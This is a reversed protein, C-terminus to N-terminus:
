FGEQPEYDTHQETPAPADTKDQKFFRSRDRVYELYIQQYGPGATRNKIMKLVTATELTDKQDTADEKKKRHLLYIAHAKDTLVRSGRLVGHSDRRQEKIDEAEKNSQGVIIFLCNYKKGLAELAEATRGEAIVFPENGKQQVVCPFTDIVFRSPRIVKLTSEIFKLPDDGQLAHGLYYQFPNGNPCTKDLKDATAIYDDQTIVMSRNLNRETLVQAAVLALYSTGSLEPSFVVVTEGRQAEELVVQTTFVTKGTGSFTSYFVVYGADVPVYAMEDVEKIAFHLRFPDNAGDTGAATRLRQILSMFGEVPTTQSLTVLENVKQKFVEIDRGCKDRFFDNADKAGDPWLILFTNEGLESLLLKMKDSGAKGDNDGALIVMPAKKLIVKWEPTIKATANPISVARFDAQEMIATDLEGETVFVPELANITETNFLAKGDMGTIQVFEKCVVSRMKVATIKDGVIRPFCIWGKDRCSENEESIRGKTSPVYGLHLARITAEGVGRVETLYKMAAADRLLAAEKPAWSALPLVVKPAEVMSKFTEQVKKAEERWATNPGALERLRKFADAASLKEHLEIFAIIDGGKGCGFCYFVECGNKNKISFSASDENHFPCCGWYEEGRRELKMVGAAYDRLSVKDKLEQATPSKQESM